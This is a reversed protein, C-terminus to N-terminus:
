KLNVGRMQSSHLPDNLKVGAMKEIKTGILESSITSGTYNRFISRLEVEDFKLEDRMQSVINRVTKTMQIAKPHHVYTYIFEKIYLDMLSKNLHFIPYKILSFLEVVRDVTDAKRITELKERESLWEATLGSNVIYYEKVQEIYSEVEEKSLTPLGKFSPKLPKSLEINAESLEKVLEEFLPIEKNVKSKLRWVSNSNENVM